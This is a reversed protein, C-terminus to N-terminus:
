RKALVEPAAVKWRDLWNGIIPGTTESNELVSYRPRKANQNLAQLKVPAIFYDGDGLSIAIERAFDFWSARGEAVAHVLREDYDNLGHQHIVRAVDKTWTPSGYQDHVARVAGNDRFESALRKPFCKEGTGYLWSTRFISYNSSSAAILQEGLFKSEGYVNIPAPSAALRYPANALGDFVYDSSVHFYRVGALESAQAFQQALNANIQHAEEANAEAREVNTFGVCNVVIDFDLFYREMSSMMQSFESNRRSLAVVGEGEHRLFDVLDAGLLGSSGIVLWRM